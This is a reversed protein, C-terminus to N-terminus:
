YSNVADTSATKAKAAAVASSTSTASKGSRRTTTENLTDSINPVRQSRDVAAVNNRRKFKQYCLWLLILLLLIAILIGM